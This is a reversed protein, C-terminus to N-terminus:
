SFNEKAMFAYLDKWDILCSNIKLKKCLSQCDDLSFNLWWDPHIGKLFAEEWLNLSLPQTILSAMKLHDINEPLKLILGDHCIIGMEALYPIQENAQIALPLLLPKSPLLAIHHKLFRKADFFLAKKENWRLMQGLPLVLFLESSTASPARKIDPTPIIDFSQSKTRAAGYTRTAFPAQAKNEHSPETKKNFFSDTQHKEEKLELSSNPCESQIAAFVDSLSALLSEFRAFGVTHKQPHANVDIREHELCLQVVLFGQPFFQQAFRHFHQENIWRKKYYWYQELGRTHEPCYWVNITGMDFTHNIFHWNLRDKGFLEELRSLIDHEAHKKLNLILQDNAILRAKIAPHILLINKFMAECRKMELRPSKLFLRRVPIPAFLQECVVETGHQMAAPTVKPERNSSHIKLACGESQEKPFSFLTFNCVSAITFLAEGRFGYSTLQDLDELTSIKSTTHRM